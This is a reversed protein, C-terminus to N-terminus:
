KVEKESLLKEWVGRVVELVFQQERVVSSDTRWCAAWSFQKM